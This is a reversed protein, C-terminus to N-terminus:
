SGLPGEVEKLIKLSRIGELRMATFGSQGMNERLSDKVTIYFAGDKSKEAKVVLGSHLKCSTGAPVQYDENAIRPAVSTVKDYTVEVAFHAKGTRTKNIVKLLVARERSSLKRAPNGELTLPAKPEFAKRTKEITIIGEVGTDRTLTETESM